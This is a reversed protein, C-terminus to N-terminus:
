KLIEKKLIERIQELSPGGRITRILIASNSQEGTLGRRDATGQHPRVNSSTVERLTKEIEELKKNISDTYLQVDGPPDTEETHTHTTKEKKKTSTQTAINRVELM